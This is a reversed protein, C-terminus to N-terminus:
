QYCRLNLVRNRPFDRITIGIFIIYAYINNNYQWIEISYCSFTCNTLYYVLLACTSLSILKQKNITCKLTSFACCVDM